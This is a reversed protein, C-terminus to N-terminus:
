LNYPPFLSVKNFALFALLAVIFIAFLLDLPLMVILVPLGLMAGFIQSFPQPLAAISAALQYYSTFGSNVLRGIIEFALQQLSSANVAEAGAYSGAAATMTRVFQDHYASAQAAAHQFDEAHQSFLQTIGASVEDAAPPLLAQTPGAAQLHAAILTSDIATLDTAAQAITAPNAIM